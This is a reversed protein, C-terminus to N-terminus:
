GTRAQYIDLSSHPFVPWHDQATDLQWDEKNLLLKVWSFVETTSEKLSLWVFVKSSYVIFRLDCSISCHESSVWGSYHKVYSGKHWLGAPISVPLVLWVTQLWLCGGMPMIPSTRFVMWLNGCTLPTSFNDYLLVETYSCRQSALPVTEIATPFVEGRQGLYSCM